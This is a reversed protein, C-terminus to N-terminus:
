KWKVRFGVNFNISSQIFYAPKGDYTMLGNTYYKQNTINNVAGYFIVRNVEWSGEFNIICFSPLKYTNAYNIYSSNQYRLVMGAQWKPKVFKLEQNVIVSPTLVPQFKIDSEKIRNYSIASRNILIIFTTVPYLADLEIGSRFSNATSSRLPVGTPGIQGNLTIENKFKMYYGNVFLHGRNLFFRMGLEQDTVQEPKLPNFLLEGSNDRTLDDNGSFFDNRTPERQTKAISYYIELNNTASYTVGASANFFNWYQGPMLENGKYTFSSYRYQIDGLLTIRKKLTIQLKSFASAEDRFGKNTYLEGSSAESGKHRRNYWQAQLGNYWKINRKTYSHCSFIGTFYSHFAYNYLETTSPFGLFNNLDFNYNGDLYNFFAGSHLQNSHNFKWNDHVQVHVQFFADTEAKTNANYRPNIKISDLPSGIWALKNQQKGAFSLLYIKHKEGWYGTNLFVSSSTNGSHDKYGDSHLHSARFYTGFGNKLGSNYAGNLRFTNFSGYNSSFLFGSSDKYLVSEINLSGAYSAVGNKSFGAGRQIQLSSVSEFFDPYNSFYAGQDEPENLPVSNLTTNIRTQDIGRLRFYSYGSGSGADSYFTVSPTESLIFSPEQGYNTQLLEKGSISLVTIPAKKKVSFPSVIVEELYKKTTDVPENVQSFTSNTFFILLLTLHILRKM